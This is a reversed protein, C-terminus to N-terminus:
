KSRKLMHGYGEKKLLIRTAYSTADRRSDFFCEPHEKFYGKINPTPKHWDCIVYKKNYIRREKRSLKYLGYHISLIVTNPITLKM